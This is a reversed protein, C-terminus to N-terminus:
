QGIPRLHLHLPSIVINNPDLTQLMPHHPLPQPHDIIRAKPPPLSPLINIYYTMRGQFTQLRKKYDDVENRDLNLYYLTM